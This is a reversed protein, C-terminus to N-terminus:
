LFVFDFGGSAGGGYLWAMGFWPWAPMVLLLIALDHLLMSVEVESLSWPM